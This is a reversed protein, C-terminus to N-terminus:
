SCCVCLIRVHPCCAWPAEGVEAASGVCVCSSSASTRRQRERFGCIGCLWNEPCGGRLRISSSQPLHTFGWGPLAVGPPARKSVPHNLAGPAGCPSPYATPHIQLFPCPATKNGPHSLDLTDTSSVRLCGDTLTWCGKGQRAKQTQVSPGSQQTVHEEARAVGQPSPLTEAAKEQGKCIKGDEQLIYGRPCSCQYSGETNKCIFNCPKPSQNCEDLDLSSLCSM